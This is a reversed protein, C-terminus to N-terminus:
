RKLDTDFITQRIADLKKEIDKSMEGLKKDESRKLQAVKSSIDTLDRRIQQLIKYGKEDTVFIKAAIKYYEKNDKMPGTGDPNGSGKIKGAIVFVKGKQTYGDYGRAKQLGKNKAYDEIEDRTGSFVVDFSKGTLYKMPDFLELKLKKGAIKNYYEAALDKRGIKILAKQIKDM